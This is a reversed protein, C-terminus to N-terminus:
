CSVPNEFLQEKLNLVSEPIISSMEALKQASLIGIGRNSGLTYLTIHTPQTPLDVSHKKRLFDFLKDINELKVMVVISTRDGKKVLRLENTFQYSVLDNNKSFEMFDQVLQQSVDEMNNSDIIPALHKVAMISIHFDSRLMLEESEVIFSEPLQKLRQDDVPLSIYGNKYNYKKNIM